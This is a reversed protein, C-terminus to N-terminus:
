TGSSISYAGSGGGYTVSYVAFVEHRQIRGNKLAMDWMYVMVPLARTEEEGRDRLDGTLLGCCCM